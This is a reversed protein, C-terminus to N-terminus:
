INKFGYNLLNYYLIIYISTCISVQLDNNIKIKKLDHNSKKFDQVRIISTAIFNIM